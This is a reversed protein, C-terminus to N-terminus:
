FSSYEGHDFIPYNTQNVDFLACLEEKDLFGQEYNLLPSDKVSKLSM